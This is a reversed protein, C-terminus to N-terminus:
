LPEVKKVILNFGDILVIILPDGKKISENQTYVTKITNNFLGAGKYNFDKSAIGQQGFFKQEKKIRKFEIIYREISIILAFICILITTQLFSHSMMVIGLSCIFVANTGSGGRQSRGYFFPLDLYKEIGVWIIAYISLFIGLIRLIDISAMSLFYSGNFGILTKGLQLSLTIIILAIVQIWDITVPHVSNLMKGTVKPDGMDKVADKEADENSYGMKIYAEKQDDIHNKIEVCTEKRIKRNSINKTLIRLYEESKM